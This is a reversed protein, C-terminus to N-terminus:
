IPGGKPGMREAWVKVAPDDQPGPEPIESGEAYAVAQEVLKDLIRSARQVRLAAVACGHIDDAKAFDKCEALAADAQEIVEQAREVLAEIAEPEAGQDAAETAADLHSQIALLRDDLSDFADSASSAIADPSMAQEMDAVQEEDGPEAGEDLSDDGEEPQSEVPAEEGDAPPEEPAPAEDGPEGAAAAEALAVLENVQDDDLANIVDALTPAAASAGEMLGPLIPMTM